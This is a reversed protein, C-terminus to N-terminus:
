AARPGGSAAANWSSILRRHPHGAKFDFFGILKPDINFHRGQAIRLSRWRAAMVRAVQDHSLLAVKGSPGCTRILKLSVTSPGLGSFSAWRNWGKLWSPWSAPASSPVPAAQDDALLQDLQRAAQDAHLARGTDPTHEPDLQVPGIAGSQGAYSHGWPPGM